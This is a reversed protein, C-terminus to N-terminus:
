YLFSKQEALLEDGDWLTARWAIIEGILEYTEKDLQIESWKSFFRRPQVIAEVVRHENLKMKSGRLELKLKLPGPRETCKFQVNFQLASIKDRHQRLYFQYADREYLSPSLAARGKQDLLQPLVKIIRMEGAWCQFSSLLVLSLVSWKM